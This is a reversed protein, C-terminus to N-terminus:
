RFPWWGASREGRRPELGLEYRALFGDRDVDLRAFRGRVADEYEFMTVVGDDNRDRRHFGPRRVEHRTLVRNRDRDSRIFEIRGQEMAEHMSVWGDRNLDAFRLDIAAGGPFDVSYGVAAPPPGYGPPGYGPAGYGAPGGRGYEHGYGVPAQPSHCPERALATGSVATVLAFGLVPLKAIM